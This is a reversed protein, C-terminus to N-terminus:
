ILTGIKPFEWTSGHMKGALRLASNYTIVSSRLDEEVSLLLSVAVQWLDGGALSTLTTAIASPLM